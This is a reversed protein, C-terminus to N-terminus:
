SARRRRSAALTLFCAMGLLLREPEPVVEVAGIDCGAGQPRAVGRQDKALPVEPTGPDGDDDYVCDASPIADIAPSGAIPLQTLTPGGNPELPGLNLAEPTVAVQDTPHDLGCTDGPSEINGGASLFPHTRACDGDALTNSFTVTGDSYIAGGEGATNGSITSSTITVVANGYIGGGHGATNGSITSNTVILVNATFIGGGYQSAAATNGSVTSNTITLKGANYIGGASDGSTNDSVSSRDLALDGSDIRIGGGGHGSTNGSITSNSL